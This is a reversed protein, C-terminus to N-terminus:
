NVRKVAFLRNVTTRCDAEYGSGNTVVHDNIIKGSKSTYIRTVTSTAGLNHWTVDGVVLVKAEIADYWGIGQLRIKKM